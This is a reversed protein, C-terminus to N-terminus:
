YGGSSSGGQVGGARDPQPATAGGSSSKAPPTTATKHSSRSPPKTATKAPAPAVIVTGHMFPHFDCHYPITGAKTLTISKSQGRHVAGTDFASRTDATATHEANDSNTFTLKGGVTASISPPAYKFGKIAVSDGAVAGAAPVAAAPRSKTTASHKDAGGCGALALLAGMPLM